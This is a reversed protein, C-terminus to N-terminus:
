YTYADADGEGGRIEVSLMNPLCVISQGTRDIPPRHVCDQGPCDASKMRVRMRGSSDEEIMIVNEYTKDVVIEQAESLAYVGYLEGGVTVTVRADDAYVGANAAFFAGIVAGVFLAATLIVDATRIQLATKKIKM